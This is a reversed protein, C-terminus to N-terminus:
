DAPWLLRFPHLASVATRPLESGPSSAARPPSRARARAGGSIDLGQAQLPLLFRGTGCMPEHIHGRAERAYREYFDFADPPATPKDLAYFETSLKGYGRM